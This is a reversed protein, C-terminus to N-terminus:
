RNFQFVFRQDDDPFAVFLMGLQGGSYKAEAHAAKSGPQTSPSFSERLKMWPRLAHPASASAGQWSGHVLIGEARVVFRAVKDIRYAGRHNGADIAAQDVVANQGAPQIDATAGLGHM